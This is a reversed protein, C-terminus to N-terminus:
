EKHLICLALSVRLTKRLFLRAQSPEFVSRQTQRQSQHMRPQVKFIVTGLPGGLITMRQIKLNYTDVLVSLASNTCVVTLLLM